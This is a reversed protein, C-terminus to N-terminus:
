DDTRERLRKKSKSVEQVNHSIEERLSEKEVHVARKLESMRISIQENQEGMSNM